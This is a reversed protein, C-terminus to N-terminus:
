LKEMFGVSLHLDYVWCFLDCLITSAIYQSPFSLLGIETSLADPAENLLFIAREKGNLNIIISQQSSLQTSSSWPSSWGSCSSLNAFTGFQEDIKGIGGALVYRASVVNCENCKSKSNNGSRKSSLKRPEPYTTILLLKMLLRAQWKPQFQLM